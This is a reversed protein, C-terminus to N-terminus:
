MMPVVHWWLGSKLLASNDHATYFLMAVMISRWILVDNFVEKETRGDEKGDANEFRIKYRKEQDETTSGEAEDEESGSEKGEEVEEQNQSTPLVLAHLGAKHHQVQKEGPEHGDDYLGYLDDIMEKLKLVLTQRNRINDFGEFGTTQESWEEAPVSDILRELEIITRLNQMVPTKERAKSLDVSRWRKKEKAFATTTQRDDTDATKLLILTTFLLNALGELKVFSKDTGYVCDIWEELKRIQLVLMARFYQKEVPSLEGFWAQFEDYSHLMLVCQKVIASYVVFEKNTVNRLFKLINQDDWDTGGWEEAGAPLNGTEVVTTVLKALEEELTYPITPKDFSTYDMDHQNTTDESTTIITRIPVIPLRSDLYSRSSLKPSSWFKSNLALMSLTAANRRALTIPFIAPVFNKPMSMMLIWSLGYHDSQISDMVEPRFNPRELLYRLNGSTQGITGRIWRDWWDAKRKIIDSGVVPIDSTAHAIALLIKRQMRDQQIWESDSRQRIIKWAPNSKGYQSFAAVTGLTPHQRFDFQWGDGVIVPYQVSSQDGSLTMSKIGAAACATVIFAVEAYAPVALLDSPLYDAMTTETEILESDQVIGNLAGQELFRYWSATPLDKDKPDQTRKAKPVSGKVTGVVLSKWRKSSNSTGRSTRDRRNWNNEMIGLTEELAPYIEYITLVPTSAISTRNMDRWSWEKRTKSSWPGIARQNSVRRGTGSALVAQWITLAAFLLAFIGVPATFAFSIPDWNFENSQEQFQKDLADVVLRLLCDTSNVTELCQSSKTRLSDSM